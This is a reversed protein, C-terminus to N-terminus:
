LQILQNFTQPDNDKLYALDDLFTNGCGLLKYSVCLRNQDNLGVWIGKSKLKKAFEPKDSIPYFGYPTNITKAKLALAIKSINLYKM